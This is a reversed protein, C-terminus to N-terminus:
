NLRVSFELFFFILLLLLSLMFLLLPLDAFVLDSCDCINLHSSGMDRCICNILLESVGNSQDLTMRPDQDSGVTTWLLTHSILSLVMRVKDDPLIKWLDKVSFDVNAM